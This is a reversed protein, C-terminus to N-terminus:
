RKGDSVTGFTPLELPVFIISEKLGSKEIGLLTEGSCKRAVRGL